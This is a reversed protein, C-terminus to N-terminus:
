KGQETDPGIDWGHGALGLDLDLLDAEVPSEKM